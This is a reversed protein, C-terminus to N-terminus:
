CQVLSSRETTNISPVHNNQFAPIENHALNGCTSDFYNNILDDLYFQVRLLPTHYPSVKEALEVYREIDTEVDYTWEEGFRRSGDRALNRLKEAFGEPDRLEGVRM